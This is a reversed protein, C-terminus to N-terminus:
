RRGRPRPRDDEDDDDDDEARRRRRKRPRDDDDEEDEDEEEQQLAEVADRYEDSVNALYMGQNNLGTAAVQGRMGFIVLGVVGAFLLLALPVTGCFVLPSNILWMGGASLAFVVFAGIGFLAFAGLAFWVPRYFHNRHEQCMPVWAEKVLYVKHQATAHSFVRFRNKVPTTPKKGCVVCVGPTGGQRCQRNTLFVDAM